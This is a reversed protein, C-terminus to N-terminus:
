GTIDMGHIQAGIASRLKTIGQRLPIEPDHAEVGESMSASPIVEM